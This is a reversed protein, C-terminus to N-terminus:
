HECFDYQQMEWESTADISHATREKMLNWRHEQAEELSMRLTADKEELVSERISSRNSIKKELGDPQTEPGLFSQDYWSLQQPPVNATSIIWM